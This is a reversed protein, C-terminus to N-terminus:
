ASCIAHTVVDQVVIVEVAVTAIDLVVQAVLEMAVVLVLMLATRVVLLLVDEIVLEQALLTAIVVVAKVVPKLVVM